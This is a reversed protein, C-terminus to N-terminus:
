NNFANKYKEGKNILFNHLKFTQNLLKDNIM